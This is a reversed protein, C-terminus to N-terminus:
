VYDIGREDYRTSKKKGVAQIMRALGIIAAIPLFRMMEARAGMAALAVM